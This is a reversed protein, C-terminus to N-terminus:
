YNNTIWLLTRRGRVFNVTKKKPYKQQKQICKVWMFTPFKWFLYLADSRITTKNSITIVIQHYLAREGVVSSGKLYPSSYDSM